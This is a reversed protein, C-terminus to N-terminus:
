SLGSHVKLYDILAAARRTLLQRRYCIAYLNRREGQWGSLVPARQGM